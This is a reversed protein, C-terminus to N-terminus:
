GVVGEVIVLVHALISDACDDISTVNWYSSPLRYVHDSMCRKVASMNSGAIWQIPFKASLAYHALVGEADVNLADITWPWRGVFGRLRAFAPVFEEELRVVDIAGPERVPIM